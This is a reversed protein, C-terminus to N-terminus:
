FHRDGTVPNTIVELTVMADTHKNHCFIPVFIAIAQMRITMM